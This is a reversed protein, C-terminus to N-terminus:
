EVVGKELYLEIKNDLNEIYMNGMIKAKKGITIKDIRYVDRIDCYVINKGEKLVVRKNKKNVSKVTGTIEVFDKNNSEDLDKKTLKTLDIKKPTDSYKLSYSGIVMGERGNLVNYKIVKYGLGYYEKTGGDDYTKTKIAFLPGVEFRTILFLDFIILLSVVITINLCIKAVRNLIKILKSRDKKEEKILIEDDNNEVRYTTKKTIIQKRVKKENKDDKEIPTAKYKEVEQYEDEFKFFDPDNMFEDKNVRKTQIRKRTKTTKKM